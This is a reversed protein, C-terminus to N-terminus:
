AAREKHRGVLWLLIPAAVYISSYTGTAVGVILAFAFGHLADGAALYLVIVVLFVTLSTLLTRSLTQNTSDNVMKRTLSPDKGRVERIRDFVVITDNVSYGIITLFAAVIPLNVKVPEVLLFGLYPAIYVSIAVAGLMVFVDHILAVVAAFGFAVAQFRVWLYIIIGIWSAVLAYVALVRTNGAVVAGITNSAPFIPSEAIQKELCELVAKAKEPALMIRLDWQRFETRDGEMYKPNSLQFAVAKPDLKMAELAATVLQEVAPHSLPRQFTLPSQSGGLYPDPPAVLAKEVGTPPGKERTESPLPERLPPKPQPAAAPQPAAPPKPASKAPADALALALSNGGCLGVDEGAAVRPPVAGQRGGAPGKGATAPGEKRTASREQPNAAAPEGGADERRHGRRGWDAEARQVARANHALKDGFVRSLAQKLTAMDASTDITFRLGPTENRSAAVDSITLDPLHNRLAERVVDTKQPKDFEVQVSVGGTFDIDFLGKGRYFSVVVAMVTILVSVTICYPFWGMFDINTHGIWRLMKVKTLWQRKEAVDYIVRAVFVSTYMSTLVGIWLTIAFGKIQDSGIWYLVTAAILHTTNCDIITAGARHFANRIAMRVTAGRDLEERLREFVLINNDVAMGVTLALGAFGTLTFAAKFALMVAFLILMNLALAINAVIGSFRYYWLMFIPVLIASILMARTSKEITDSGLTPGSYLRSIPEKTLAAPLRGADLVNVLEQVKEQTFSGTIEGSDYITSQISPASYLENDLIVGLKYTFDTLKEPLHNATMEGFLKGGGTNFNFNVCPRGQRDQSSRASTLYAGTVNYIDNLVLIETITREGAKRTRRAIGAYGSGDFNGEKVQEPNAPVWWALLKGQRNTVKIKSPDAKAQEIVTKADGKPDREDALIRFQLEGTQSIIREITAVEAQDKAPVIIEVGETGYKRVTVEKQGGPNVRRTIAVVLKDMDVPEGKQQSQDVEYVLLAGGSLDIGLKLPPGLLLIAGSAFLTFLCLGIKWGHDPMRLKRGLYGGLFFSVVIVALAVLVHLYPEFPSPVPAAAAQAFLPSVSWPM